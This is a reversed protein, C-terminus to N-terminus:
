RLRSHCVGLPLLVTGLRWSIMQRGLRLAVPQMASCAISFIIILETVAWSLLM